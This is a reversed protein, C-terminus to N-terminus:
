AQVMDEGAPFIWGRTISAVKGALIRRALRNRAGNEDTHDQWVDVWTYVGSNGSLIRMISGATLHNFDDGATVIDESNIITLMGRDDLVLIQTQVVAPVDPTVLPETM